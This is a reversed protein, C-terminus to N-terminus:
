PGIWVLRATLAQGRAQFSETGDGFFVAKASSSYLTDPTSAWLYKQVAGPFVVPDVRAGTTVTRDVLSALEKANPMRWGARQRAQDLMVVHSSSYPTGACATGTWSRGEECRRWTLGTKRDLVANGSSDGPYAMSNVLYRQGSWTAGRVLRLYFNGSSRFQTAATSGSAGFNVSWAYRSDNSDADGTWYREAQTNPFWTSDVIVSISSDNIDHKLIGRLENVTPLRWDHHGCLNAANVAALYGSTDGPLGNGQNTYLNDKDRLGGDDTKGEWVLGTVNDRVCGTRAYNIPGFSGGPLFVLESYSMPNVATRHGDQQPNLTNAAGTCSVLADAVAQYCQSSTIGTHPVAPNVWDDGLVYYGIGEYSYQPLTAIISDKEAASNTYFHYGRAAYFFRYLPTYGTGPLTSAYYAIGEYTYHPLMVAVHARESETITYFHVGTQTNYFRHVPSLGPVNTMTAHFATGDLHMHPQTALVTAKETESSSYFHGQTLTNFFRYVPIRTAAVKATAGSILKGEFAKPLVGTRAIQALEESNLRAGEQQLAVTAEESLAESRTAPEASGNSGQGGGCATLLLVLAIVGLTRRTMEFFTTMQERQLTIM